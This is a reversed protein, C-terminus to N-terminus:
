LIGYSNNRQVFTCTPQAKMIKMYTLLFWWGGGFFFPIFAQASRIPTKMSRQLEPCLVNNSSMAESKLVCKKQHMSMLIELM